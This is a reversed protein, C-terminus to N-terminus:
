SKIEETEETEEVTIARKVIYADSYDCLDSKILPTKFRMNKNVSYQGCSLDYM